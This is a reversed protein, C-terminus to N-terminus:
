KKGQLRRHHTSFAEYNSFNKLLFILFHPKERSACTADVHRVATGHWNLQILRVTLNFLNNEVKFHSTIYLLNM